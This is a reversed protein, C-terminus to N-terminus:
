VSVRYRCKQKEGRIFLPHGHPVDITEIFQAGTRECTKRSAYNDPNCTIWLTTLGHRKALPFLLQCSRAAYHHGRHQPYVHYGIHGYYLCTQPDNSIRLAIAGAIVPGTHPLRMWFHYAPVIGQTSDPSQHGSPWIALMDQIQDRTVCAERPMHKRTLPHHAADLVEDIYQEAPAVLELENDVLRDIPLFEFDSKQM